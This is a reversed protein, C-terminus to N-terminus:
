EMEKELCTVASEDPLCRLLYIPITEAVRAMLDTARLTDAEQWPYHIIGRMLGAAARGGHLRTVSNKEAQELVVVAKLPASSNECIGSTGSYPIGAAECGAKGWTLLTKDGNIIHAGRYKQWLAAQTSKGVGSPATFVIAQQGLQIHSGHLLLGGACLILHEFAACNEVCGRVNLCRPSITLEARDDGYFLDAYELHQGRFEAAYRRCWGDATRFIESDPTTHFIPTEPKPPLEGRHLFVQFDPQRESVRFKELLSGELLETEGTYAGCIHGFEFFETNMFM